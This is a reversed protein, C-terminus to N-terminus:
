PHAALRREYGMLGTQSGNSMDSNLYATDSHGVASKTTISIPLVEPVSSVIAVASRHCRLSCYIRSLLWCVENAMSPITLMEDLMRDAAQSRPTLASRRNVPM